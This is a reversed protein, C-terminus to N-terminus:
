TEGPEVCLIEKGRWLLPPGSGGDASGGVDGTDADQTLFAAIHGVGVEELDADGEGQGSNNGGVDQDPDEEADLRRAAAPM